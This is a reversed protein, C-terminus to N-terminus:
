YFINRKFLPCLPIVGDILSIAEWWVVSKGYDQDQKAREAELVTIFLHRDNMLWWPISIQNFCGSCVLVSGAFGNRLFHTM